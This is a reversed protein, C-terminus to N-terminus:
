VGIELVPGRQERTMEILGLPSMPLIHSKAADDALAKRLANEVRECDAKRGLSVFDIVVIGGIHRLRLQRGIEAAAALNASMPDAAGANVDIATLAETREIALWGGEAFAVRSEGLTAIVTDLDYFDFLSPPATYRECRATWSPAFLRCWGKVTAESKRGSTVIKAPAPLGHDAVLRRFADPPSMTGERVLREGEEALAVIEASLDEPQALPATRRVIWGGERDLLITEIRGRRETDDDLRRSFSVGQGFPQHVLSPGTLAVARSAHGLKGGRADRAIQMVPTDGGYGKRGDLLWETGDELIAVPGVNRLGRVGRARAIRGVQTPRLANDIELVHLRSDVILAARMGEPDDEVLILRESM